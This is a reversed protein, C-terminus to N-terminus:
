AERLLVTGELKGYEGDLRTHGTFGEAKFRLLYPDSFRYELQLGAMTLLGVEKTIPSSTFPVSLDPLKTTWTVSKVGVYPILKWANTSEQAQAALSMCAIGLTFLRKM